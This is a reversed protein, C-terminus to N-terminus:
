FVQEWKQVQSLYISRKKPVLNNVEEETLEDFNKPISITNINFKKEQIREWLQWLYNYGELTILAVLPSLPTLNRLFGAANGISLKWSFIVYMLFGVVFQFWIFPDLKKIYTKYILGVLFYIYIVPSIVYIFRQFYHGFSTQGYRNEGTDKGITSNLVYLFDGTLIWGSINWLFTPLGLFLIYKFQKEKILYYAWFILLVSLELRALPLLGGIIAFQMWKKNSLFYFGLGLIAVSLPETEANRSLSFLFPQFLLFAIVLFANKIQQKKVGLYLYYAGFASILTM